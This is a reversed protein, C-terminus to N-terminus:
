GAEIEAILARLHPSTPAIDLGDLCHKLAIDPQGRELYLRASGVAGMEMNQRARSVVNHALEAGFAEAWREEIRWDKLLKTVSRCATFGHDSMWQSTQYGYHQRNYAYATDDFGHVGFPIVGILQDYFLAPHFGGAADMADRRVTFIPLSSIFFSYNTRVWEFSLQLGPVYRDRVNTTRNDLSFGGNRFYGFEDSSRQPVGDGDVIIPLGATTTCDPNDRFLRVMKEFYDPSVWDDDPQWWIYEGDSIAYAHNLVTAMLRQPEDPDFQNRSYHLFQIRQDARAADRIFDATEDGAGNNIIIIEMNEHTQKSLADIALKLYPLRRVDHTLVLTSVMGSRM